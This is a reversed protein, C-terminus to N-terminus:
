AHSDRLHKTTLAKKRGYKQTKPSRLSSNKPSGGRHTATRPSGGPSKGGNLAYAELDLEMFSSVGEREALKELKLLEQDAYNQIFEEIIMYGGGVRIVLKGNMIKAFIKKLGFLYFGGGLRKIPVPCNAMNIFQALLEDVMDGKQAKYVEKPPPGSGLEAALQAVLRDRDELMQGLENIEAEKNQITQELKAIQRDLAEIEKELRAIEEDALKIEHKLRQIERNKEEILEQMKQIEGQLARIQAEQDRILEGKQGATELAARVQEELIKKEDDAWRLKLDLGNLEKELGTRVDDLSEDTDIKRRLNEREERLENTQRGNEKLQELLEEIEKVRADREARREAHQGEFTSVKFTWRQCGNGLDEQTQKRNGEARRLDEQVAGIKREYDIAKQADIQKLLHEVAVKQEDTRSELDKIEWGKKDLRGKLESIEKDQELVTDRLKSTYSHITEDSIAFDKKM